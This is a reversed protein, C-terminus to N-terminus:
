AEFRLALASLFNLEGEFGPNEGTGATALM